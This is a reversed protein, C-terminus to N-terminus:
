KRSGVEKKLSDVAERGQKFMDHIHAYHFLANRGALRLNSFRGCYALLTSVDEEIGRELVPYAHGIRQVISELVRDAQFGVTRELAAITDRLIASDDSRWTADDPDCPIELEVCTEGPPSMHPSRNRPEYLRTFPAEADPFYLSANKTFHNSEDTKLRLVCLILNRFTIRDACALIHDPPLPDLIRLFTPLPLTSIVNDVLQEPADSTTIALLRAGSHRIRTVRSNTRVSEAPLRAELAHFLSGIGHKPYLFVGDLHNDQPRPVFGFIKRLVAGANLGELRGGAVAPSLISPDRGWLKRTYGLLFLEALTEGYRSTALDRFNDSGHESLPTPTIAGPRVARSMAEFAIRATILVPLNRLLDLPEPPFAYTKNGRVIRSPAGVTVLDDGLLDRFLVTVDPDRPHLRHAGTDYLCSGIRLTRCNGGTEDGAEHLTFGLGQAHAYHAAALGAPGGGLIHLATM